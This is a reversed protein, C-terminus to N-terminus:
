WFRWWPRYEKPAPLAAQAQQLLVHLESIQQDKNELQQRSEQRTAELENQLFALMDELRRVEASSGDVTGTSTRISGGTSTRTSSKEHAEPVEVMWTFGQPRPEQHGKLEGRRVRRKVTAVSVGMRQAAEAMTMPEM